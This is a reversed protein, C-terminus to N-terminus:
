EGGRVLRVANNGQNNANDNGNNFNVNWANGADPAYPSASWFYTNPPAPFVAGNIAPSYNRQEIISNLEKLNPLRWGGSALNLAQPWSYYAEAGTCTSGNWTQGEACRKWTLGTKQHYATGNVNDLVFDSTPTTATVATNEAAWPAFPWILLLVALAAAALPLLNM